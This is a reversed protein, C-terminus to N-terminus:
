LQELLRELARSRHSLVGKEYQSMEAFTRGDGEVPAFVPDYGFGGSGRREPTIIGTVAGEGICERGDPWVLAICTRFTARRGPSGTTGVGALEHLLKAVNEEYSAGVGAYRATHVGPRGDLADVFLGTDDAM